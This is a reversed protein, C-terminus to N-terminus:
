ERGRWHDPKRHQHMVTVVHVVESGVRFIVAYPFKWLLVRRIGSEIETWARPNELIQDLVRELEISFQAALKPDEDFYWLTADDIDAVAEPAFELRM